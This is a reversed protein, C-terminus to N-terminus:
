NLRYFSYIDNICYVLNNTQMLKEAEIDKKELLEYFFSVFSLLKTLNMKVPHREDQISMHCDKYFQHIEVYSLQEVCVPGSLYYNQGSHICIFYIKNLVKYVVPIKQSNAQEILLQVLEHSNALPTEKKSFTGFGHLENSNETTYFIPIGWLMELKKLLTYKM